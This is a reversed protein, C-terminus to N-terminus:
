SWVSKRRLAEAGEYKAVKEVLHANERRLAEGETKLSEIQATYDQLRKVVVKEVQRDLEEQSTSEHAALEANLWDVESTLQAVNSSLGEVEGELGEVDEQSGRLQAIATALLDGLRMALDRGEHGDAQLDRIAKDVVEKAELKRKHSGM